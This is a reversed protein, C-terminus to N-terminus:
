SRAKAAKKAEKKQREEEAAKEKLAQDDKRALEVQPMLFFAIVFGLAALAACVIFILRFGKRYATVLVSKIRAADRDSLKSLYTTPNQLLSKQADKDLKLSSINHSM